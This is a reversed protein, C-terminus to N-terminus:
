SIIHGTVLVDLWTFCFLGFIGVLNGVFDETFEINLAKLTVTPRGNLWFTSLTIKYIFKYQNEGRFSRM